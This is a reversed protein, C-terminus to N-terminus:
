GIEPYVKWYIIFGSQLIKELFMYIEIRYTGDQLFPPFKQVDAVYNTITYLGKPFIKPDEDKFAPLDSYPVLDDQISEVYVNTIFESVPQRQAKLAENFCSLNDTWLSGIM